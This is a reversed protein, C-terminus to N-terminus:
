TFYEELVQILGESSHEKACISNKFGLDQVAKYTTTGICAIATEIASTSRTLELFNKATSPSTFIIADLSDLDLQIQHTPKRTEYVVLKTVEHGSKELSDKLSNDALNGQPLLIKQPSKDRFLNAISQSDKGRELNQLPPLPSTKFAREANQSTFVVWDYKKEPIEFPLFAIEICPYIVPIAKKAELKQVLEANQQLARTVLIKKHALISM